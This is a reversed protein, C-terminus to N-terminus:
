SLKNQEVEIQKNTEAEVTDIALISLIPSFWAICKDRLDVASGKM